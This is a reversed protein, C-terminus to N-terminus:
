SDGAIMNIIVAHKIFISILLRREPHAVSAASAKSAVSPITTIDTANTEIIKVHVGSADHRVLSKFVAFYLGPDVLHHDDVSTCHFSRIFLLLM